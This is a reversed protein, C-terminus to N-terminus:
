FVDSEADNQQSVKLFNYFINLFSFCLGPFTLRALYQFIRELKVNLVCRSRPEASAHIAERVGRECREAAARAEEARAEGAATGFNKRELKLRALVM